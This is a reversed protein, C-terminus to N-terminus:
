ASHGGPSRRLLRVERAHSLHYMLRRAQDVTLALSAQRERGATTTSLVRVGEALVWAAADPREKPDTVLIDVRDGAGLVGPLTVNGKERLDFRRLGPDSLDPSTLVYETLVQGSAVGATVVRGLAASRETVVGPLLFAKPVERAQLHDERLLTDPQLDRTAVWVTAIPGLGAAQEQAQQWTLFAALALLGIGAAVLAQLLRDRWMRPDGEMGRKAYVSPM